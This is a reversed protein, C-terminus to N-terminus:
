FLNEIMRVGAKRSGEDIEVLILDLQWDSDIKRELIFTQIARHIRAIKKEHMNEEGKIGSGASVTKVEVFHVVSGKQAVIDLEGWKKLYNREIIKFGHKELFVCAVNEGIDGLSRKNTKSM